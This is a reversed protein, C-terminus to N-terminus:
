ETGGAFLKTQVQALQVKLANIIEIQNRSIGELLTIKDELTRVLERTDKSYAIMTKVNRTTVEEFAKKAEKEGSEFVESM